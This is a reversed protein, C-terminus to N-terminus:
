AEPKIPEFVIKNKQEPLPKKHLNEGSLIEDPIGQPFARCGGGDPNLHICKFCILNVPDM